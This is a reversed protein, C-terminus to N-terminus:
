TSCDCCWCDHVRPTPRWLKIDCEYPYHDRMWLVFEQADANNSFWVNAYSTCRFDEWRQVQIKLPRVQKGEANEFIAETKLHNYIEVWHVPPLNCVTVRWCAPLDAKRPM